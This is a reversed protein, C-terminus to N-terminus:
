LGCAAARLTAEALSGDRTPWFALVADGFFHVPEGGHAELMDILRGYYDNLLGTLRETGEAGEQSLQTTLTSFGAVDAFLTAGDIPVAEPAELPHPDAVFRRVILSPVYASTPDPPQSM